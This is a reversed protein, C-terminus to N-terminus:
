KWLKITEYRQKLLKKISNVEKVEVTTIYQEIVHNDLSEGISSTVYSNQLNLFRSDLKKIIGCNTEETTLSLCICRDKIVKIIIAPHGFGRNFFIDGVLVKNPTSKNNSKVTNIAHKVVSKDWSQKTNFIEVLEFRTKQGVLALEETITM